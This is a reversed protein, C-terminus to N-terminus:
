LGGPDYRGPAAVAVQRMQSVFALSQELAIREAETTSEYELTVTPM